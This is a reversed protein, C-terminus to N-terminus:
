LYWVAIGLLGAAILLCYIASSEVIAMALAMLTRIKGSSEPYKGLNECAKAGILGQGLSPGLSGVGMAFGASIFAAAKAIYVGDMDKGKVNSM